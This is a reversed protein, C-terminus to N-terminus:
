EEYVCVREDSKKAELLAMDAAKILAELEVGDEPCTAIGLSISIKATPIGDKGLFQYREVTTIIRKASAVAREKDIRPLLIVFEDGGYRAAIDVRRIERVLLQALERLLADGVLHGYIDNYAKFGDIDLMILSLHNGYRNVLEMERQLAEYLHRRNYLETLGDTIVLRETERYLRANEMAIALQDALTSM